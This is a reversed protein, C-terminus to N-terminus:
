VKQVQANKEEEIIEIVERLWTITSHLEENVRSLDEQMECLRDLEWEMGRVLQAKDLEKAVKDEKITWVVNGQCMPCREPLNYKRKSQWGCKICHVPHKTSTM